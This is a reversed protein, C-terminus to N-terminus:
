RYAQTAAAGLEGGGAGRIAGGVEDRWGGSAAPGSRGRRRKHVGEPAHSLGSSHCPSLLPGRLLALYGDNIPRALVSRCLVM